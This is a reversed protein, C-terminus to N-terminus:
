PSPGRACPMEWAELSKDDVAKTLPDTRVIERPEQSTRGRYQLFEHPGTDPIDQADLDPPRRMQSSAHDEIMLVANHYIRSADDAVIAHEMMADSEGGVAPDIRLPVRKLGRLNSRSHRKPGTTDNKAPDTDTVTRGDPRVGDDRRIDRRPCACYGLRSSDQAYTLVGLLAIRHM